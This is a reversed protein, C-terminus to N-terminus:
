RPGECGAWHPGSLPMGCTRCYPEAVRRPPRAPLEPLAAVKAEYGERKAKCKKCDCGSYARVLTGHPETM